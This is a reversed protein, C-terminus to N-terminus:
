NKNNTVKQKLIYLLEDITDPIIIDLYQKASSLFKVSSIMRSSNEKYLLKTLSIVTSRTEDVSYIMSASSDGIVITDSTIYLEAPVSPNLHDLCEFIHANKDVEVPHAKYFCNINCLLIKNIILKMIRAQQEELGTIGLLLVKSKTSYSYLEGVEKRVLSPTGHPYNTVGLKRLFKNGIGFVESNYTRVIKLQPLPLLVKFALLRIYNMPNQLCTCLSLTMRKPDLAIYIIEGNTMEKWQKILLFGVIDCANHYFLLRTSQIHLLSELVEFVRDRAINFSSPNSVRLVLSEYFLVKIGQSELFYRITENSTIVIIHKERLKCHLALLVGQYSPAYVILVDKKDVTSMIKNM